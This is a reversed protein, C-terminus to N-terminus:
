RENTQAAHRHMTPMRLSLTHGSHVSIIGSVTRETLSILFQRDLATAPRPSTRSGEYFACEAGKREGHKM